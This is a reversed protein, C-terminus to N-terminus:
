FSDVVCVDVKDGRKVVLGRLEDMDYSKWHKVWAEFGFRTSKKVEDWLAKTPAGPTGVRSFPLGEVGASEVYRWWTQALQRELESAPAAAALSFTPAATFASRSLPIHVGRGSSTHPSGLGQAIRFSRSFVACERSCYLMTGDLIGKIGRHFCNKCAERKCKTRLDRGHVNMHLHPCPVNFDCQRNQFNSCQKHDTFCTIFQRILDSPPDGYTKGTPNWTSHITNAFLANASGDAFDEGRYLMKILFIHKDFARAVSIEHRSCGFTSTEQGYFRTGFAVFVSCFQVKELVEEIEDGNRMDALYVDIGVSQLADKFAMAALM